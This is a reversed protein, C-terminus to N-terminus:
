AWRLGSISCASVLQEDALADIVSLYWLKLSTQHRLANEIAGRFLRPGRERFYIMGISECDVHQPALTKSVHRVRSEDLQVKMDDDDYANKYNVTLTIPAVPSGLVRELVPPEFVIDGNLLLFDGEMADRAMWCSALNDSIDFFPNFAPRVPMGAYRQALVAEVLDTRYGTVVVIEDIGASLLADVQWEMISKGAVELLCKPRSETLPLLRRGQGASLLIARTYSRYQVNSM